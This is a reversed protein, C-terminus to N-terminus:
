IDNILFMAAPQRSLAQVGHISGLRDWRFGRSYVDYERGPALGGLRGVIGVLLTGFSVEYYGTESIDSTCFVAEM